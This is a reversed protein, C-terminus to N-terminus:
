TRPFESGSVVKRRFIGRKGPVKEFMSTFGVLITSVTAPPNSADLTMNRRALEKLIRRDSVEEGPNTITLAVERVLSKRREPTNIEEIIKARSSTRSVSPPAEGFRTTYLDRLHTTVRSVYGLNATIWEYAPDIEGLYEEGLKILKLLDEKKHTMSEIQNELDGKWDKLLPPNNM